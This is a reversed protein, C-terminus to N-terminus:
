PFAYQWCAQESPKGRLSQGHRSLSFMLFYMWLELGPWTQCSATHIQRLLVFFLVSWNDWIEQGRQSNRGCFSLIFFFGVWQGRQTHKASVAVGATHSRFRESLSDFVRSEFGSSDMWGPQFVGTKERWWSDWIRFHDLISTWFGTRQKILRGAMQPIMGTIKQRYRLNFPHMM